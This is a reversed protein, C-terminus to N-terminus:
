QKTYVPTQILKKTITDFQASTSYSRNGPTSGDADQTPVALKLLAGTVNFSTYFTPSVNLDIARMQLSPTASEVFIDGIAFTGFDQENQVYSGQNGQFIVCVEQKSTFQNGSFTLTIRTGPTGSVDLGCVGGIRRNDSAYIWTGDLQTQITSSGQPGDGDGGGGGCASLLAACLTLFGRKM